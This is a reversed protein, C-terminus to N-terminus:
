SSCLWLIRDDNFHYYRYITIIIVPILLSIIQVTETRKLHTIYAHFIHSVILLMPVIDMMWLRVFCSLWKERACVIGVFFQIWYENYLMWPVYMANADLKINLTQVHVYDRQVLCFDVALCMCVCTYEKNDTM